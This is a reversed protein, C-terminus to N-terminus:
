SRGSMLGNVVKVVAAGTLGAVVGILALAGAQKNKWAQLESIESAMRVHESKDERRWDHIEARLRGIEALMVEMESM